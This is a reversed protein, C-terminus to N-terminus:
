NSSNGNSTYYNGNKSNSNSNSNSNSRKNSNKNSSENGICENNIFCDICGIIKAADSGNGSSLVSVFFKVILVILFIIVAGLIRKFFSERGKKMEDEKQSMIGKLLDVSGIIILIIPVIVMIADYLASTLGPIVSPINSILEVHNDGCAVYKEVKMYGVYNSNGSDSGNSTYYNGHTTSSNGGNTSTNGNSTYYNGNNTSSPEDAYVNSSLAIILVSIFIFLLKVIRKM